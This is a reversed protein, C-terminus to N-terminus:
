KQAMDVGGYNNEFSLNGLDLGRLDNTKVERLIAPNGGSTIVPQQITPPPVSEQVPTTISEFEGLERIIVDNEQNVRCQIVYNKKTRVNNGVFSIKTPNIIQNDFFKVVIKGKTSFSDIWDLDNVLVKAEILDGGELFTNFTVIIEKAESVPTYNENGGIKWEEGTWIYKQGFENTFEQGIYYGNRNPAPM